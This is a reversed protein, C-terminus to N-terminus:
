IMLIISNLYDINKNKKLLKIFSPQLESFFKNSSKPKPFSVIVLLKKWLIKRRTRPRRNRRGSGRPSGPLGQGTATIILNSSGGCERSIPATSGSGDAPRPETWWRTDRRMGLFLLIILLVASLSYREFKGSGWSLDPGTGTPSSEWRGSAPSFNRRWSSRASCWRVRPPPPVLSPPYPPGGPYMETRNQFSYYNDSEINRRM